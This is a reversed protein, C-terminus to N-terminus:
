GGGAGARRGSAADPRRAVAQFLPQALVWRPYPRFTESQEFTFGAREIAAGTDRGLHCGAALRSWLPTMRDQWRALGGDGRVHELVVLRGSPRLVRRAEALARNLSAVSCLVMTFVVADFSGDGHGLTEASDATVQVPVRATGLKATLRRRMAPDPEAVVVRSAKEFYPLNVGTGAGVDLVEGDLGALLQARRPGLIDRELQRNLRDYWAAFLWHGREGM